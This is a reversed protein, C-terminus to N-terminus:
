KTGPAFPGSDVAPTPNNINGKILENAFTLAASDNAIIQREGDCLTRINIGNRQYTACKGVAQLAATEMLGLIQQESLKYYNM